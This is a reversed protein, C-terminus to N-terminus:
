NLGIVVKMPSKRSAASEFAQQVQDVPLLDRLYGSSLEEIVPNWKEVSSRLTSQPMGRMWVLKGGMRNFIRPVEQSKLYKGVMLGIFGKRAFVPLNRFGGTEGQLDNTADAILLFRSAFSPDILAQALPVCDLGLEKIAACRHPRKELVIPRMGSRKAVLALMTGIPGGGLILLEPPLSPLQERILRMGEEAVAVVEHLVQAPKLKGPIRVLNEQTLLLWSRLAGIRDSSLFEAHDCFHTEERHCYGCDFCALTGTSTVVDGAKFGSVKAGVSEVTGVWEHGLRLEANDAEMLYLDSGCIGVYAPRVVVEHPGPKPPTPLSQKVFARSPTCVIEFEARGAKVREAM